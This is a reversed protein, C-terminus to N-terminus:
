SIIYEWIYRKMDGPLKYLICDSNSKLLCGALYIRESSLDLIIEELMAVSEESLKLGSSCIKGGHRYLFKALRLDRFNVVAIYLATALAPVTAYGTLNCWRNTCVNINLGLKLLLRMINYNHHKLAWILLSWGDLDCSYVLQSDKSLIHKVLSSNDRSLAHMLVSTGFSTCMRYSYGNDSVKQEFEEPSLHLLRQIEDHNVYPGDIPKYYIPAEFEFVYSM